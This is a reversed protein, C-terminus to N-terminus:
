AVGEKVLDKLDEVKGLPICRVKRNIRKILGSLVRSPGLEYFTEYGDAIMQEIIKQWLVPSTLQQKLLDRIEDPDTVPQAKVNSYIPIRPTQFATEDLAYTLGDLADIMLPSHFAGSVVLETVLRAKRERALDMARHVGEVSGSIVIQGPSNFNAPQVIGAKSAEKCIERVEEEGLGIIAAMTGANKEGSHYMLEGRIKVLRLGDKWSLAGASVLATYEGLSHGATAGATLGNDRVIMEVAMSHVFIAPQTYRTQKLEEEPGEFSIRKLPFRLIEEAQDYLERVSPFEEYLDKGMGVYQSGQGPFVFAVKMTGFDGM